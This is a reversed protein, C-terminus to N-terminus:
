DNITTQKKSIKCLFHETLVAAATTSLIVLLASIGFTYTAFLVLPLMAWVVNQMIVDTSIGKTIHPSTNINLTKNLM